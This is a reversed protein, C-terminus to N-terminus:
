NRFTNTPIMRLGQRAFSLSIDEANKAGVIIGGLTEDINIDKDAQFPPEIDRPNENRVREIERINALTIAVDTYGGMLELLGKKDQKPEAGYIANQLNHKPSATTNQIRDLRIPNM